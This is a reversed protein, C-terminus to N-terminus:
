ITCNLPLLSSGVGAALLQHVPNTHMANCGEFSLKFPEKFQGAELNMRYIEDSVSSIYLDCNGWNYIMHRGFKPIRVSYHTGYPAHFSLNRDAQLFVLKEYGPSLSEM